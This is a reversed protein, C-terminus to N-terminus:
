SMFAAARAKWCRVGNRSAECIAYEDEGSTISDKGGSKNYGEATGNLVETRVKDGIRRCSVDEGFGNVTASGDSVDIGCVTPM